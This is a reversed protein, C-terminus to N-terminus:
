PEHVVAPNGHFRFTVPSDSFWSRRVDTVGPVSRLLGLLPRLTIWWTNTIEFGNLSGDPRM